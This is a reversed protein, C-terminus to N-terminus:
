VMLVAHPWLHTFQWGRVSSVLSSHNLRVLQHVGAGLLSSSIFIWSCLMVLLCLPLAQFACAYDQLSFVGVPPLGGLMVGAMPSLSSLHADLTICTLMADVADKAKSSADASVINVAKAFEAEIDAKLPIYMPSSMAAFLSGSYSISMFVHQLSASELTKYLQELGLLALAVAHIRFPSATLTPMADASAVEGANKSALDIWAMTAWRKMIYQVRQRLQDVLTQFDPLHKRAQKCVARMVDPSDHDASSGLMRAVALQSTAPCEMAMVVLSCSAQAISRAVLLVSHCVYAARGHHHALCLSILCPM